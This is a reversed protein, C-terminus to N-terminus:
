NHYPSHTCLKAWLCSACIREEYDSWTHARTFFSTTMFHSGLFKNNHGCFSATPSLRKGTKDMGNMCKWTQTEWTISERAIKCSFTNIGINTTIPNSCQDM